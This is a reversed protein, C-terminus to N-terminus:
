TPSASAHDVTFTDSFLMSSQSGKLYTEPFCTAVQLKLAANEKGGGREGVNDTDKINRFVVHLQIIM